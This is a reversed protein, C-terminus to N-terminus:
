AVPPQNSSWLINSLLSGCSTPVLSWKWLVVHARRGWCPTLVFSCNNLPFMCFTKWSSLHAHLHLLSFAWCYRSSQRSLQPAQPCTELFTWFISEKGERARSLELYPFTRETRLKGCPRLYLGSWREVQCRLNHAHKFLDGKEGGCTRSTTELDHQNQLIRADQMYSILGRVCFLNRLRISISPARNFYNQWTPVTPNTTPLVTRLEKSGVRWELSGEFRTLVVPPRSLSLVIGLINCSPKQGSKLLQKEM